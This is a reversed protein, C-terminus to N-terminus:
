PRYVEYTWNLPETGVCQLWSMEFITGLGGIRRSKDSEKEWVAPLYYFDIM